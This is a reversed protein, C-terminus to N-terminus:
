SAVTVAGMAAAARAVAALAAEVRSEAEGSVRIVLEKTEFNPYSGVSVDPFSGELERMVPYFRAETAFQFRLERVVAATQGTLFEPALEETFIGKLELPVGPLVFLRKEGVVYLPAPAMGKRNRFVHDPRAPLMAMRRNGESVEPSDLLGAEHMRRVRRAIRELVPEYVVLERGLFSAVAEFTRDDPTPGLGGSTLVDTIDPDGLDRALAEVVEAPRDRVTSARKLPYGLLRLREALWNTNTDLTFGALLEDGIAIVSALPVGM